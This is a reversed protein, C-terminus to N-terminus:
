PKDVDVLKWSTKALRYTANASSRNPYVQELYGNDSLYKLRNPIMIMPPNGFDDYEFYELLDGYEVGSVDFEFPRKETEVQAVRNLIEKDHYEKKLTM